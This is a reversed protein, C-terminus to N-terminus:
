NAAVFINPYENTLSFHCESCVTVIACTLLDKPGMIKEQGKEGLLQSAKRWLFIDVKYLKFRTYILNIHNNCMMNQHAFLVSLPLEM